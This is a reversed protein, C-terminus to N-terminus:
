VNFETDILSWHGGRSRKRNALLLLVLTKGQNQGGFDRKKRPV